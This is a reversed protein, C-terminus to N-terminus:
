VIAELIAKLIADQSEAPREETLQSVDIEDM